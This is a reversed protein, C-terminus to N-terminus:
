GCSGGCGTISSIGISGTQIEMGKERLKRAPTEGIKQTYLIQCDQIVGYVKDFRDTNFADNQAFQAANEPTCYSDVDRKELFELGNDTLKYIYFCDAKGFHRDVSTGNSTSIAIKIM